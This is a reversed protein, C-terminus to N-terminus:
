LGTPAVTMTVIGNYQDGDLVDKPVQVTIGLDLHADAGAVFWPFPANPNYRAGTEECMVSNTAFSCPMTGNPGVLIKPLDFTVEVGMADTATVEFDVLSSIAENGSIVPAIPYPNNVDPDITYTYGAVLGDIEGDTPAVTLANSVVVAYQASSAPVMQANAMGVVLVLAFVVLMLNRM